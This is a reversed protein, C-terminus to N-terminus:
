SDISQQSLNLASLLKYYERYKEPVVSIDPRSNEISVIYNVCECIFSEDQNDLWSNYNQIAIYEQESSYMARKAKRFYNVKNKNNRSM